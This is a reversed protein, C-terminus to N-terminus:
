CQFRRKFSSFSVISLPPKQKSIYGAPIEVSTIVISHLTFQTSDSLSLWTRLQAPHQELWQHRKVHKIIMGGDSDRGFYKDLEGKMEYINKAPVTNKCELSYVIHNVEDWALVDIDGYEPDPINVEHPIVRLTSHNHLWEYVQRRYERGKINNIRSSVTKLHTYKSDNFRGNHLLYLLNHLTAMVHRFGFQYSTVNEKIEKYIPRRIYSLERNYRWPYIDDRKYNHPPTILTKRPKLSLLHMAKDFAQRTYDPALKVVAQFLEEEEIRLVSVERSTAIQALIFHLRIYENLSIEFQAEFATDLENMVLDDSTRGPSSTPEDPEQQRAFAEMHDTLQEETYAHFFSALYEEFFSKDTGIRGSPLLGMEMDDLGMTIADSMAGWQFIQEMVALLEDIGDETIVKSGNSPVAAAFEILCRVALAVQVLNKESQKLKEVETPYDSFCAIQAPILLEDFERKYIIAENKLMLYRVLEATNYPALQTGIHGVLGAVIEHCLKNKDETREINTPVITGPKLYSTLTQLLHSTDAEPIDRAKVPLWRPDSRADSHAPIILIMRQRPDSMGDVVIRDIMEEEFAEQGTVVHHLQNLGRLVQKMILQEAINGGSMLPKMLQWPIALSFSFSNLLTLEFSITTVDISQLDAESIDNAIMKVDFILEIELPLQDHINVLTDLKPLHLLWYLIAEAFRDATTRTELNRAQSNKVWIPSSYYDLVLWSEPSPQVPSYIPGYKAFTEVQIHGWVGDVNQVATHKDTSQILKIRYEAAYGPDILMGNYFDDSPFFSQQNDLFYSFSDLSDTSVIHMSKHASTSAKAFKWLTLRDISSDNLLLHLDFSTFQILQVNDPLEGFMVRIQDGSLGAILLLLIKTSPGLSNTLSTAVSQIREEIVEGDIDTRDPLYILYGFLDADIRLLSEYSSWEQAPLVRKAPRWGIGYLQQNISEYNNQHYASVLKDLAGFNDAQTFLYRILATLLSTPVALVYGGEVRVLPKSLLPNDDDVDNFTQALDAATTIFDHFSEISIDVEESQREFIIDPLFCYPRIADLNRTFSISDRHIGKGAMYREYGAQRAITNSIRLLVIVVGQILHKYDAPFDSKVQFIVLLLRELVDYSDAEIGPFVVSNGQMFSVNATFVSEAPDEMVDMAFHKGVFTQFARIDFDQAEDTCYKAAYWALKELRLNKGHNEPLLLLGAIASLTLAKNQKSLFAKIPDPQENSTKEYAGKPLCCKKYKKGSGCPCPANRNNSSM